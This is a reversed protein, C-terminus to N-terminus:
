LSQWGEGGSRIARLMEAGAGLSKALWLISLPLNTTIDPAGPLKEYLGIPIGM